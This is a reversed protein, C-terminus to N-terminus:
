FRHTFFFYTYYTHIKQVLHVLVINPEFDKHNIEENNKYDISNSMIRKVNIALIKLNVINALKHKTLPTVVKINGNLM